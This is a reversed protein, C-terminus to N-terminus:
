YFNDVIALDHNGTALLLRNHILVAKTSNAHLQLWTSKYIKWKQVIHTTSAKAVALFAQIFCCM